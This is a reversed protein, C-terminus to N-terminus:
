YEIRSFSVVGGDELQFYVKITRAGVPINSSRAVWYHSDKKFEFDIPDGPTYPLTLAVAGNQGTKDSIRNGGTTTTVTIGDVNQPHERSVITVIRLDYSEIQAPISSRAPLRSPTTAPAYCAILGLAIIMLSLRSAAVINM